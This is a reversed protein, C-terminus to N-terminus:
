KWLRSVATQEMKLEPMKFAPYDFLYKLEYTAVLQLDDGAMTATLKVKGDVVRLKRLSDTMGAEDGGNYMAAFRKEAIQQLSKGAETDSADYWKEESTFDPNKTNVVV